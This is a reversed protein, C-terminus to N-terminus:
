SVGPIFSLGMLLAGVLTMLRAAKRDGYVDLYNLLLGMVLLFGGFYIM